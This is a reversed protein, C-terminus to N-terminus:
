DKIFIKHQYIMRSDRFIRHYECIYYKLYGFSNIELKLFTLFYNVFITNLPCTFDESGRQM